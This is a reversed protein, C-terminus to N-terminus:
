SRFVLYVGFCVVATGLWRVASVHERLFLASFILVLVYGLSLMPYAWSLNVRSLVALWFFAGLGFGTFGLLIKPSGLMRPLNASLNQWTLVGIANMGAKLLLEGTVSFCIAILILAFAQGTM